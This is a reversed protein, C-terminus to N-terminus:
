VTYAVFTVIMCKYLEDTKSMNIELLIYNGFNMTHFARPRIDSANTTSSSIGGHEYPPFLESKIWFYGTRIDAPVDAM